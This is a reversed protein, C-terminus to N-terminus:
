WRRRSCERPRNAAAHRNSEIWWPQERDTANPTLTTCGCVSCCHNPQDLSRLSAAKKPGPSASQWEACHRGSNSAATEHARGTLRRHAAATTKAAAWRTSLTDNTRLLRTKKSGMRPMELGGARLRTALSGVGDTLRNGGISLRHRFDIDGVTSVRARSESPLTSAMRCM